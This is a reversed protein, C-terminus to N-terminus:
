VGELQWAGDSRRVTFGSPNDDRREFSGLIAGVREAGVGDLKSAIAETTSPGLRRLALIVELEQNSLRWGKAAVATFAQYLSYIGDVTAKVGAPTPLSLVGSVLGGAAKLFSMFNELSVLLDDRIVYRGVLGPHMGEPPVSATDQTPDVREVVDVSEILGAMVSRDFGVSKALLRDVACAAAEDPDDFERQTTM